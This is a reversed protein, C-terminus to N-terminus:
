VDPFEIRGAKEGQLFLSYLTPTSYRWVKMEEDELYEYLKSNYLKNAAESEPIGQEKAIMACLSSSIMPIMVLFQKEDM